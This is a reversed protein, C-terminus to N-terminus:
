LGKEMTKVQLSSVSIISAIIYITLIVDLATICIKLADFVRGM